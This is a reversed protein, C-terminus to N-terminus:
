MGATKCLFWDSFGGFDYLGYMQSGTNREQRYFKLPDISSYLEEYMDTLSRMGYQEM